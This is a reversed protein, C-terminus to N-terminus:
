ICAYKYFTKMYIKHYIFIREVVHTSFVTHLFFANRIGKRKARRSSSPCLEKAAKADSDGM